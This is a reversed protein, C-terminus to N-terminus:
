AGAEVAAKRAQQKAKAAGRAPSPDTPRTALWEDIEASTWARVNPSLLRGRPFDHLEILRRLQPWSNVVGNGKLDAFRLLVTM